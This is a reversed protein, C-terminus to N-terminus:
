SRTCPATAVWPWWSAAGSEVARRALRTADGPGETIRVEYELERQRLAQEIGPLKTRM